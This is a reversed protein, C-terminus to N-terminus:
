KRNRGAFMAIAGDPIKQGKEYAEWPDARQSSLRRPLTRLNFAAASSLKPLERWSVPTAVPAGERARTSFPAVATATRDNRMWDVFIRGSRAAKSAKAIFRDPEAVAMAQALGRAFMKVEDWTRRPSLPAIVHIGKGGTLMPYSRLDAAELLGKMENAARAVDKFPLGEDPDLDFVLRDPRELDDIRSGWIHLELVGFQAVGVLGHEDAIRVYDAMGGGEEVPVPFFSDPMGPMWHRQYFCKSARGQPCRVLTLLRNRVHPLMLDQVRLLYEAVMMKTIGQKPYLPKDPHTLTRLPDSRRGRSSSVNPHPVPAASELRVDRAEKDERLGLYAAHRLVGDATREAYRVEAVLEPVLWVAQQRAERPLSAFPPDPRELTAFREALDALIRADFGTGVRGRYALKGNEFTGIILSAFPRGAATSRRYGGIVVEEHRGCKVKLWGDHRGSRYRGDGRKSIIGELGHRCAQEHFRPGSGVVHDCYRVADRPTRKLVAALKEKREFLPRQRLDVGDLRLLDFAFFRLPGGDTLANQLAGFSSRGQEDLVAVEGDILAEDVVISRFESALPRFRDTWDLGSRTYFRVAGGALAALARYGDYKIEHVWNNGAPAAEVLTALGLPIFEPLPFDGAPIEPSGRDIGAAIEAMERGTKVSTEWNRIPDSEADTFDDHEKILLWNEKKEPRRPRMRILAWTGKLREGALRFKLKGEKLDKHPDGIPEWRGRDWVMVSGGGYEGEPITGEFDGYDLPHDEVRVALRKEAPDLSPGRTVAWSKLVGDLELRLDFHLRRAAHKQIVYSWGGSTVNQKRGSPEMSREFDRKQQYTSLRDAM